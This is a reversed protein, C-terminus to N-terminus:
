DRGVILFDTLLKYLEESLKLLKRNTEISPDPKDSDDSLCAELDADSLMEVDLITQTSAQSLIAERLSKSAM